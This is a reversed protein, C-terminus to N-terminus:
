QESNEEMPGFNAGVAVVPGKKAAKRIPGARTEKKTGSKIKIYPYTSTSPRSQAHKSDDMKGSGFGTKYEELGSQLLKSYYKPDESLHDAVIEDAIAKDKTHEAEAKRGLEVEKPDFEDLSRKDGLGGKLKQAKEKIILKM